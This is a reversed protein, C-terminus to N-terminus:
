NWRKNGVKWNPNLDELAAPYFCAIRQKTSAKAPRKRKEQSKAM